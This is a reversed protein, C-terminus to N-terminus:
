RAVLCAQNQKALETCISKATTKDSLPGAQVRYFIGGAGKDVKEVILDLKGLQAPHTKQLKAWTVKAAAESKVAALQVRIKGGPKAVPTADTTTPKAATQMATPSVPAAPATPTAATTTSPAPAAPVASAATMAASSTDPVAPVPPVAPVAPAAATTATPAPAAAPATVPSPVAPVQIAQSGTAAAQDTAAPALPAVPQEPPPLVTEGNQATPQGNMNELVQVNQNPVQMGGQDTPKVKEPTADAAIVPVEGHHRTSIWVGAIVVVAAVAGILVFRRNRQRRGDNDDEQPYKNGLPPPGMDVGALLDPQGSAATTASFYGSANNGLSGPQTAGQDVAPQPNTSSTQAAFAPSNVGAGHGGAGHGPGGTQSGAHGGSVATFGPEARLNPAAPMTPLPAGAPAESLRPAAQSTIPPMVDGRLRGLAVAIKAQAQEPNPNDSSM